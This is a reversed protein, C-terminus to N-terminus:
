LENRFGDNSEFRECISQKFRPPISLLAIVLILGVVQNVSLLKGLIGM